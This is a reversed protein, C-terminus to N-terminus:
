PMRVGFHAFDFNAKHKLFEAEMAARSDRGKLFVTITSDALIQQFSARSTAVFEVLGVGDDGKIFQYATIGSRSQQNAPTVLEAWKPRKPDAFTGAGVIPVVAWLREYTSRVDVKAQQASIFGSSIAFLLTIWITKRERDM